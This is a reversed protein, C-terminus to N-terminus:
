PSASGDTANVLGTGASSPLSDVVSGAACNGAPNSTSRWLEFGFEDESNDTFQVDVSSSTTGTVSMSSPAAPPSGPNTYSTIVIQDISVSDVAEGNAQTADEVYIRVDGSPSGPLAFTQGGDSSNNNVTFMLNRSAGGDTSYYFNAGESGSVWADVFVVVGGAGGFVDFTWGHELSQKRRRKPGGNHTETVTQVSGGDNHTATYSGVVDGKILLDGTAVDDISAPLPDTTASDSNSFASPGASNSARVQYFHTSEPDLGSDSYSTVNAGLTAITSWNSDDPSSQLEFNSEDASNDSWSVDISDPGTATAVLNSPANPPTSVPADRFGAVYTASENLTRANWAGKAPDVLPDIGQPVGLYNVNPNSVRGVRPAGSCSYSMFTRFYPSGLDEDSGDSCRRYGYNYNGNVGGSHQKRDHLAGQNHGIEHAMTRNGVLCPEDTVSFASSASSPSYGIGCGQGDYVMAVIDAGLSDRVGHVEDMNGDSTGRLDSLTTSANTGSYVTQHTGVLNMTIDVGSDTYAANIDAVATVIDAQLQSCSGASNCAAQNYVVLLDQVTNASETTAGPAASAEGDGAPVSGVDDDPLEQLDLFYLRNGASSSSGIRYMEADNQIMGSIVNGRITLIVTNGPNGDLYGTWVTQGAKQRDVHQRDAIYTEGFLEISIRPSRLARRNVRVNQGAVAHEPLNLGDPPGIHEFLPEQAVASAGFLLTSFCILLQFKLSMATRYM